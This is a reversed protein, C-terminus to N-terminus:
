AEERPPDFRYGAGRVTTILSPEGPRDLKRRLYRVYVDVVNSGPDFAYDWVASLIQQRSLVQRPHRMLYELLAFERSSLEVQRGARWVRRSLLDLKLDGARLATSEPQDARRVLARIRALLEEFAFPKTLYDDAGADLSGVKTEVEDRATLMLVPLGPRRLRLRRLVERGDLGPLMIDLLVVDVDEELAMRLGTEGDEASLCSYGQASLGRELMRVIGPEDEVILVRM